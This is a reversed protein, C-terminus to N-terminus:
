TSLHIDDSKSFPFAGQHKEKMHAHLREANGFMQEPKCMFCWVVKSKSM